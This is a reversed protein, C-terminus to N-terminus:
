KAPKSARRTLRKAREKAGRIADIASIMPGAVFQIAWDNELVGWRLMVGAMRGPPHGLKQGLAGIFAATEPKVQLDLHMVDCKGAEPLKGMSRVLQVAEAMARVIEAEIKGMLQQRGEVVADLLAGGMRRQTMRLSKGLQEIKEALEASAPVQLRVPEQKTKKDTMKARRLFPMVVSEIPM